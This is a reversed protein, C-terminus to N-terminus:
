KVALRVRYSWYWPVTAGGLARRAAERLATIGIEDESIGRRLLAAVEGQSRMVGVLREADGSEVHHLVVERVYRFRGSQRMRELHESKNWQHVHPAVARAKEIAGARIRCAVYAREAEPNLAPPWDCDYAAFVGGERVIRAVEAFTGEPEM